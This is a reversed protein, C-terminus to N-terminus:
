SIDGCDTYYTSDCSVSTLGGGGPAMGAFNSFQYTPYQFSTYYRPSGDVDPAWPFTFNCACFKM